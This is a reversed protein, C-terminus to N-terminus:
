PPGGPSSGTVCYVKRCYRSFRRTGGGHRVTRLVDDVDRPVMGGLVEVRTGEFVEPTLPTSPGLLAVRMTPGAAALLADATGGLLATSTMVLVEAWADLREGFAGKEGIGKGEDVVDLEAGLGRLAQAVPPFFGVMAVRTGLTIGFQAILSGAPGDDDPLRIAAAHNLANAAALGVTRQLGGGALLLDLLASAPGGEADGWGHVHSCSTSDDTWTYALGAGGDELVVATYGLGLVLQTVATQEAKHKLAAHLRAVLTDESM